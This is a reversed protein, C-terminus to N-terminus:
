ETVWLLTCVLWISIVVEAIRDSICQLHHAPAHAINTWAPQASQGWAHKFIKPLVLMAVGGVSGPSRVRTPKFCSNGSVRPYERTSLPPMYGQPQPASRPLRGLLPGM